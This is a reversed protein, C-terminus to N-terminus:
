RKQLPCQTIINSLVPYLYTNDSMRTKGLLSGKICFVECQVYLQVDCPFDM